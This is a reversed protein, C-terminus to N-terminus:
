SSVVVPEPDNSRTGARLLDLGLPTLAALMILDALLALPELDSIRSAPFLVGAAILLPGNWRPEARSRALLVGFGVVSLPFILGPLVLSLSVAAAASDELHFGTLAANVSVVGFCAGGVSGVVGGLLLASRLRSPGPVRQALGIMAFVFAAYAYVQIAGGAEGDNLGGALWYAVTSFLLLSPAIVLAWGCITRLEKLSLLDPESVDNSLM